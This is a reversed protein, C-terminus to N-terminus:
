VRAVEFFTYRPVALQSSVLSSLCSQLSIPLHVNERSVDSSVKLEGGM